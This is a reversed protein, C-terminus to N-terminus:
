RQYGEGNYLRRHVTGIRNSDPSLVIFKPSSTSGNFPAFAACVARLTDDCPECILEFLALGDEGRLTSSFSGVQGGRFTRMITAALTFFYHMWIATAQIKTSSLLGKVQGCCGNKQDGVCPHNQM